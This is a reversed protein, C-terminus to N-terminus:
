IRCFFGNRLIESFISKNDYINWYLELFHVFVSARNYGSVSNVSNNSKYVDVLVEPLFRITGQKAIRMALDWDEQTKLNTDFMGVTAFVSKRVFMTPTGIKNGRLLIDLLGYKSDSLDYEDEQPVDVVIDSYARYKCFVLQCEPIKEMLRLQKELRDSHCVDDSDHFAIYEGEALKIGENRAKSVGENKEFKIYRIRSDSYSGVVDDTNDTSGDNVIILEINEYTQSLVSDISKKICYARNYTPIIVTILSEKM